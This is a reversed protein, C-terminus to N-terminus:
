RDAQNFDGTKGILFIGVFMQRKEQYFSLIFPVGKSNDYYAYLVSTTYENM